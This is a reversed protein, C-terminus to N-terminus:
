SRAPVQALKGTRTLHQVASVTISKTGLATNSNARLIGGNVLIDGAFTVNTDVRLAGAGDKILRGTGALAATLNLTALPNTVSITGDGLGNGITITRSTGLNTGTYELRGGDLVILSGAGFASATGANAL